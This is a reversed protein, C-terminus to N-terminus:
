RLHSQPGPSRLICAALSKRHWRTDALARWRTEGNVSFLVDEVMMRYPVSCRLLQTFFLSPYADISLSVTERCVRGASPATGLHNLPRDAFGNNVPEFGTRAEM